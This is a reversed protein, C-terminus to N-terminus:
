VFCDFHQLVVFGCAWILYWIFDEGFCVLFVFCIFMFFMNFCGCVYICTCLHICELVYGHLGLYLNPPKYLYDGLMDTIKDLIIISCAHVIFGFCYAIISISNM